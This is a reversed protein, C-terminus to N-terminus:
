RCEDRLARVVEEKGAFGESRARTSEELERRVSMLESELSKARFELATVAMRANRLESEMRLGADKM